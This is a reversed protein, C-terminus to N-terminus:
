FFLLFVAVQLILEPFNALLERRNRLFRKPTSGTFGKFERIYHSQDSYGLDYISNPFRNSNNSRIQDLSFQFRTIRAFHKATIGVTQVFKREFTRRSMFYYQYIDRFRIVGKRGIIQDVILSTPDNLYRIKNNSICRNLYDSIILIQDSENGSTMLHYVIDRMPVIDRLDVELDTMEQADIGFISKLAHPQFYIGINKFIGSVLQRSHRTTQGYMFAQPLLEGKFDKFLQKQQIILGPLGDPIIEFRRNSALVDNSELIWFYKVYPRLEECPLFHKYNIM